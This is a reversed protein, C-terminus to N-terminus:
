QCFGQRRHCKGSCCEANDSCAAGQPTCSPPDVCVGGDCYQGSGCQLPVSSCGTLPDCSDVTCPDGDNCSLTQTSCEWTSADLPFCADSTCADADDCSPANGPVCLGGQCTEDGNCPNGDSCEGDSTCGGVPVYAAFTTSRTVDEFGPCGSDPCQNSVYCRNRGKGVQVFDPNGRVLIGEVVGTAADYVPSGSNGGYTDLNSEFYDAASNGRVSAGGAVKMPLGAPHGAVAVATGTAVTGTRRIQLPQHGTIARDVRVVAYDLTSTEARAVISSCTYVDGAPFTSRVTTADTMRFGFVFATTSCSAADVCHGATAVLDPGVQFGTCFAPNPQERYPESSCLGYSAGFTRSTDIRWTSGNWTLASTRVLATTSAAVQQDVSSSLAYVERRDDAGYILEQSRVEVGLEPTEIAETCAFSSALALSLALTRNKM